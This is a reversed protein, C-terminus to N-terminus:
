AAGQGAPMRLRSLGRGLLNQSMSKMMKRMQFYQKLVQNVQQVSTGSGRAIRKRRKGNVIEHNRREQPTMSDIIAEIYVLEKDDVHVKGADKFIGVKPLMGLMQDMSGMQRVQRLQDRFDELTFTDTQLKRHVELAKQKDIKEEAKEILSLIDGMGM